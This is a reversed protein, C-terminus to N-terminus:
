TKAHRRDYYNILAKKLETFSSDREKANEICVFNEYSDPLAKLVLSKQMQETVREGADELAFFLEEARILFDVMTEDHGIRLSTIKGMLTMIRPKEASRFHDCLMKYAKTGNGRCERRVLMVSRKDLCQVLEAWVTMQHDEFQKQEKAFTDLLGQEAGDDPKTPPTVKGLLVKRMGITEMAAEFKEQWFSFEESDGNFQLWDKKGHLKAQTGM